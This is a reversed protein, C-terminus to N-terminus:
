RAAEEKPESPQSVNNATDVAEIAYVYRGGAPVMDTFSTEQIPNATIRTLKPTGPEGRLVYYGALDKEVNPDWVLSIAGPSSGTELGVPASPPFTDRLTVCSSASEDGEISLGNTTEVASVTYCREIGWEIRTDVFQPEKLPENTLRTRAKTREAESSTATKGGIEYVNYGLAAIGVWALKIATESYTVTPRELASPAAALRVPLAPSM